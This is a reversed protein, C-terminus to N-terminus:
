YHIVFFKSYIFVNETMHRAHRKVFTISFSNSRGINQTWKPLFHLKLFEKYIDKLM